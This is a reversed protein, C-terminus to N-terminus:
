ESAEITIKRVIKKCVNSMIMNCLIDTVHNMGCSHRSPRLLMRSFRVICNSALIKELVIKNNSALPSVKCVSKTCYFDIAYTKVNSIKM